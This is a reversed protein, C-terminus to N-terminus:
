FNQMIKHLLHARLTLVRSFYSLSFWMFREWWKSDKSVLKCYYYCFKSPTSSCNLLLGTKLSNLCLCFISQTQGHKSCLNNQKCKALSAAARFKLYYKGKAMLIRRRHCKCYVETHTQRMMGKNICKKKM